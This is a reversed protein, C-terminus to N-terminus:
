SAKPSLVWHLIGCSKFWYISYSSQASELKAIITEVCQTFLFVESTATIIEYAMFKTDQLLPGCKRRLAGVSEQERYQQYSIDQVIQSTSFGTFFPTFYKHVPWTWTAFTWDMQVEQYLMYLPIGWKTESVRFCREMNKVIFFVQPELALLMASCAPGQPHSYKDWSSINSISNSSPTLNPGNAWVCPAMWPSTYNLVYEAGNKANPNLGFRIMKLMKRLQNHGLPYM